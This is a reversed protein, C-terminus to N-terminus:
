PNFYSDLAEQYLPSDHEIVQAPTMEGLVLSTFSADVGLSDWMEFGPRSDMLMAYEFNRDTMYMNRSWGLDVGVSLDGDYWNIWDFIVDYVFRPDETGQPIFYWNTQPKSHRNTESDGSPGCPWPVVGIEFPLEAGGQEGFLWDAGIWFGSLGAAYLENNINWNSSDWPRATKDRNYMQDILALVERAGTSSLTETEGSAIGAGNSMLLNTLLYTWYGSFGYVEPMGDGDTDKTLQRLYGRWKAWTWEGRDYLDQPNELGAERILGMNFALVFANVSGSSTPAFLYTQQQGTLGLYKLVHQTTFVDTGQLAMEELSVAYGNLVAPIGFQIDVEYIDVDPAGGPISTQISEQLGEFTLNVYELVVNYKEEIKRMNELRMQATEPDALQPDDTIDTHKSVYYRDYWTGITIIRRGDETYRANGAPPLPAAEATPTATAPPPASPAATPGGCATLLIALLIAIAAVAPRSMNM